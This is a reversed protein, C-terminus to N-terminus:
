PRSRVQPLVREAVLDVRQASGALALIVWSAGHAELRRLWAVMSRASGVWADADVSRGRRAEEIARTEERDEGVVAVGAWTAEVERGAAAQRLRRVKEAFADVPLGWGNWGDAERAAIRVIEDARGGVWIPPGGSTPPPLLPGTLEAVREGGAWGEGRFLCKLARVTETLHRRRELKGECPLGYTEHELRDGPDGSGIGLILRGGSIGDVSAAMKALMGPARLSVRTVLTGVSIADTVAAVASLTAFAELSPRDSRGGRPFLHDFAFVGDYGLTEARRAFAVVEAPDASILPLVLGIRV